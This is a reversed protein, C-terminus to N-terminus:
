KLLLLLFEHAKEKKEETWTIPEWRPLKYFTEWVIRGKETRVFSGSLTYYNLKKSKYLIFHIIKSRTPYHWIIFMIDDKKHRSAIPVKSENKLILYEDQHKWLIKWYHQWLVVDTYRVICWETLKKDISSDLTKILRLDTKTLM